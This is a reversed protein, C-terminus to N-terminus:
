IKKALIGYWDIDYFDEKFNSSKNVSDNKNLFLPDMDFTKIIEFGNEELISCYDSHLLPFYSPAHLLSSESHKGNVDESTVFIFNVSGDDHWNWIQYLSKHEHANMVLPDRAQFIPKDKLVKDWNRMDMYFYGQDNIKDYVDKVFNAVEQNSIHPLSNGTSIICDYKGQLTNNIERFDSIFLPIDYGEEKFNDKARELLNESLDSGSVEYGLKKLPLTTGGAGISCDHISTINLDNFVNKYFMKFDAQKSKDMNQNFLASTDYLNM